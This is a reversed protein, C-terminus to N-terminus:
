FILFSATLSKLSRWIQCITEVSGTQIQKADHMYAQRRKKHEFTGVEVIAFVSGFNCSTLGRRGFHRVGVAINCWLVQLMQLMQLMAVSRM